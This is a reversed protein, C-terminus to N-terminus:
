LHMRVDPQVHFTAALIFSVRRSLITGPTHAPAATLRARTLSKSAMRVKMLKSGNAGSEFRVALFSSRAADPLILGM